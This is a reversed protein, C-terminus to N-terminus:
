SYRDEFLNMIPKIPPKVYKEDYKTIDYTAVGPSKNGDKISDMIFTKRDFPYITMRKKNDIFNCDGIYKDPSPIKAKAAMHLDIYRKLKAEPIKYQKNPFNFRMDPDVYHTPVKFEGQKMPDEMAFEPPIEKFGSVAMERVTM